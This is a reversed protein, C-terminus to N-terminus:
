SSEKTMNTLIQEIEPIEAGNSVTYMKDWSKGIELEANMPVDTSYILPDDNWEMESILVSNLFQICEIDDKVLFYGADHIMNIPLIHEGYGAEEIRRNVAIMARNLLMGWSQTVANNASRVEATAEYPTRTTGLICKAIIPTHLKLGFACEVYGHEVMFDKNKDNFEDSVKYLEHFAAEVQKAQDMPLGGRKHLTYATGQYALAFTLPKSAQRLEPYKKAISNTVGVLYEQKTIEKM